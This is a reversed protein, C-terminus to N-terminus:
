INDVGRKALETIANSYKKEALLMKSKIKKINFKVKKQLLFQEILEIKLNDYDNKLSNIYELIEKNSLDEIIIEADM